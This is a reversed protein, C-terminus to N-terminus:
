SERGRVKGEGSKKVSKDVGVGAGTKNLSVKVGVAISGVLLLEGVLSKRTLM